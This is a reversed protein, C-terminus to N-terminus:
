LWTMRKSKIVSVPNPPASFQAIEEMRENNEHKPWFFFLVYSIISDLVQGVVSAVWNVLVPFM